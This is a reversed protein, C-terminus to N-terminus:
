AASASLLPTLQRIDPVSELRRVSEIIKETKQHPWHVFDACGRFKDAEDEFSMPHAPSGKAYAARGSVTRGDKLHIEIITTMKNLGAAAAAASPRYRVRHIMAQVDTRLVVADTFQQLGAKGELLMIAMCFEMSFKSQLGDQPDHRILVSYAPENTGVDVIEVQDPTIKYQRILRLIEDMGPQTLVGCPYEKISLGPDAFTWPSGLKNLLYGPDYTGGYAHFFGGPAELAEHTATWGLAALDTAVIGNQCAHGAHFPKTMTGLNAQLGAGEASAIGFANLCEDENLHRLKASATVAGFPGVVGTTHFGNEYSRPSIAQAIKCEVEVGLHYALMLDKGSIGAPEGLSFAPTLATATPHMLMGSVRNGLAKQADDYDNTHISIGNLFAAYQPMAKMSTGIVTSNGGCLRLESVYKRSIHGTTVMSGALALGFGDLIHKKGVELVETPIDIYQTERIFDVVYRTLDKVEPFIHAAANAARGLPGFSSAVGGAVAIQFFKRRLM